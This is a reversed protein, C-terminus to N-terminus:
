GFFPVEQPIFNCSQPLYVTNARENPTHSELSNFVLSHGNMRLIWSEKECLLLTPLIFAVCSCFALSSLFFLFSCKFILFSFIIMSGHQVLM